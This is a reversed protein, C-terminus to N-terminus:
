DAFTDKNGTSCIKPHNKALDRCTCGRHLKLRETAFLLGENNAVFTEKSKMWNVWFSALFSCLFFLKCYGSARGAVEYQNLPARNM